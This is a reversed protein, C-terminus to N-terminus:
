AQLTPRVRKAQTPIEHHSCRLLTNQVMTKALGGVLLWVELYQPPQQESKSTCM